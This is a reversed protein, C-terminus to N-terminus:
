KAKLVHKYLSAGDMSFREFTLTRDTAYAIRM